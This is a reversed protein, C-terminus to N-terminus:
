YLTARRFITFLYNGNLTFLEMDSKGIKKKLDNVIATLLEVEQNLENVYNFLAFNEEEQRIFQAGLKEM